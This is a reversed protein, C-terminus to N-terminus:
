EVIASVKEIQSMPMFTVEGLMAARRERLLYQYPSPQRTSIILGGSTIGVISAEVIVGNVSFNGQEAEKAGVSMQGATLAVLPIAVALFRMVAIRWRDPSVGYPRKGVISMLRWFISFNRRRPWEFGMRSVRFSYIFVTVWITSLGLLLFSLYIAASYAGFTAMSFTILFVLSTFFVERGRMYRILRGIAYHAVGLQRKKNPFSRKAYLEGLKLFLRLIVLYYVFALLLLRSFLGRILITLSLDRWLWAAMDSDVLSRVPEPLVSYYGITFFSYASAIALAALLYTVGTWGKLFTM